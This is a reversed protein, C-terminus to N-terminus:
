AAEKVLNQHYNWPLWAGPNAWIDDEHKQTQTLYNIADVQHMHCTAILSMYRSGYDASYITGFFLSRKRYRIMEKLMREVENSDIPVGAKRLFLTLGDEHNLLYKLLKGLVSNPEAKKQELLSRAWEFLEDMLPQSHAQHYNLRQDPPYEEQKCHEENDYIQDYIQLVRSAADPFLSM